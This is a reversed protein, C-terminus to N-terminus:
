FIEIQYDIVQTPYSNEIFKIVSQLINSVQASNQNITVIGLRAKRWSDKEEVEAISVNFKNRIRGKVSNLIQRKGKLSNNGPIYLDILCLGMKM